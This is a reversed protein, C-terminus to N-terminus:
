VFSIQTISDTAMYSLNMHFMDVKLQKSPATKLSSRIYGDVKCRMFLGLCLM